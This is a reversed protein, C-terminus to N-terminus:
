RLELQDAAVRGETSDSDRGITPLRYVLPNGAFRPCCTRDSGFQGVQQQQWGRCGKIGAAVVLYKEREKGKGEVEGGIELASRASFPEM